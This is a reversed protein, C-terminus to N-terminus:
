HVLGFCEIEVLSVVAAIIMPTAKYFFIPDKQSLVTHQLNTEFGSFAKLVFVYFMSPFFFSLVPGVASNTEASISLPIIALVIAAGTTVVAALQPSKSFPVSAFFAWGTCGFGAVLHLLILYGINTNTFLRSGWVVALVIWTPIYLMSVSFYWSRNGGTLLRLSPLSCLVFLLRASDLAGMAQMHSTLYSARELAM